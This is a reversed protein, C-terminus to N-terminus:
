PQQYPPPSLALGNPPRPLTGPLLRQQKETATPWRGSLERTRTLLHPATRPRATRGPHSRLRDGRHTGPSTPRRTSPQARPQERTFGRGRRPSERGGFKTRPREPRREPQQPSVGLVANHLRRESERGQRLSPRPSRCGPPRETDPVRSEPIPDCGWTSLVRTAKVGARLCCRASGMPPPVGQRHQSPEAGLPSTPRSSPQLPQKSRPRSGTADGPGKVRHTERGTRQLSAMLRTQSATGPALPAKLFLFTSDGPGRTRTQRCRRARGGHRLMKVACVRGPGEDGPRATTVKLSVFLGSEGEPGRSPRPCNTIAAWGPCVGQHSVTAM